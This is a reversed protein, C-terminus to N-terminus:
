LRRLPFNVWLTPPPHCKHTMLYTVTYKTMENLKEPVIKEYNNEPNSSKLLRQVTSYNIKTISTFYYSVTKSPGVVRELVARCIMSM